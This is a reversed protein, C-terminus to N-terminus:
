VTKPRPIPLGKARNLCWPCGEVVLPTWPELWVPGCSKCARLASFNFPVHGQERIFRKTLGDMISQMMYHDEKIFEWDPDGELLTYEDRLWTGFNTPTCLAHTENANVHEIPERTGAIPYKRSFSVKHPVGFSHPVPYSTNGLVDTNRWYPPPPIQSPKKLDLLIDWNM